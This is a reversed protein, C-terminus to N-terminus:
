LQKGEEGTTNKGHEDLRALILGLLSNLAGIDLKQQDALIARLVGVRYQFIKNLTEEGAPTLTLFVLRRDQEDRWRQVLNSEVLGDVLGTITGPALQMCRQLEGMTLPRGPTLNSAIWFRAMSLGERALYCRTSLNVRHNIRRLLSELETIQDPTEDM